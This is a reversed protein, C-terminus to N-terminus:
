PTRGYSSVLADILRHSAKLVHRTARPMSLVFDFLKVDGSYWLCGFCILSAVFLGQILQNPCYNPDHHSTNNM